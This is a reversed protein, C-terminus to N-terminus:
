IKHKEREIQRLAGRQIKGTPTHPLGGLFEIARPYKFASIQSKVFNQLETILDEGALNKDKLEIFAKVIQGRDKDPSGVVAVERVAEHEMLVAEVELGSVNYGGTLIMDDTRAEYSFYGEEDRICLDGSLNWGDRIYSKQREIDDLYRCGNPGKVIMQGIEGPLTDNFNEDVVRVEFGPVAKGILGPRIDDGSASIFIHLLESIGLGNIIKIGTKEEWQHFVAPALPEGGAICLRLSSTDYKGIEDLMLKYGSPTSFCVTAKYKEITELLVEPTAREVVVTSAGFRMTDTMYACLGYLFAIQPSGCVIDDSRIKVGYRIFTAAVALIDRHFHLTGKPTGTSGSTFGIVCPDCASTDINDFTSSKNAMAKNLSDYDESGFYLINRLDDTQRGAAEIDEALKIDSIALNVKAKKIMYVLERERLVPMTAIAIGGAKLIAFWSAILMPHNGSRLLIREGSVMGYDEVLVNAIQNSYHMLDEYTWIEDKFYIIPKDACGQAAMKDLLETAVNMREPYSALESLVSYDMEPWLNEPPMNDIIFTDIHSSPTKSM